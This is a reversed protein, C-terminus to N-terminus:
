EPLRLSERIKKDFVYDLQDAKVLVLLILKSTTYYDHLSFNM